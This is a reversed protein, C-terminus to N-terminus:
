DFMCRTNYRVGEVSFLNHDRFDLPLTLYFAVVTSRCPPSQLTLKSLCRSKKKRMGALSPEEPSKIM